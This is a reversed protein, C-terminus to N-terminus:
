KIKVGTSTTRGFQNYILWTLGTCLIISWGTQVAINHQRQKLIRKRLLLCSWYKTYALSWCCDKHHVCVGCQPPDHSSKDVDSGLHQGSTMKVQLNILRLLCCLSNDNLSDVGSWLPFPTHAHATSRTRWEPAPRPPPPPPRPAPPLHVLLALSKLAIVHLVVETVKYKKYSLTICRNVFTM